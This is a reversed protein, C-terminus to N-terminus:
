RPPPGPPPGPPGRDPGPGGGPPPPRRGDRPEPRRLAKYRAFQEPTLAKEIDADLQKRLDDFETRTRTRFGDLREEGKRFAEEIQKQQDANLGLEGKMREAIGAPSPPGGPGGRPGFGPGLHFHRATTLGMGVGMAFIVLVFLAFWLRSQTFPTM